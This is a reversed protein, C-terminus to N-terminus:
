GPCARCDTGVNIQTPADSVPFSGVNRVFVLSPLFRLPVHQSLRLWSLCAKWQPPPREWHAGVPFAPALTDMTCTWAPMGGAQFSSGQAVASPCGAVHLQCIRTTKVHCGSSVPAWLFVAVRRHKRGRQFRICVSGCPFCGKRGPERWEAYSHQSRRCQTDTAPSRRTPPPFEALKDVRLQRM